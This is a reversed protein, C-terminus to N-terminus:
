CYSIVANNEPQATYITYVAGACFGIALVLLLTIIKKM